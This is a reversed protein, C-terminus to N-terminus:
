DNKWMFDIGDEDSALLRYLSQFGGLRLLRRNQQHRLFVGLDCLGRGVIQVRDAGEAHDDLQEAQGVAGDLRQEFALLARSDQLVDGVVFVKLDLGLLDLLGALAGRFDLRQHARHHGGEVVVRPQVFLNRGLHDRRDRRHVVRRKEGVLYDAM